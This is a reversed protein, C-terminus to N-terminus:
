RQNECPKSEVPVSEINGTQMWRDYDEIARRLRSMSGDVGETARRSASLILLLRDKTERDQKRQDIVIDCLQEISM